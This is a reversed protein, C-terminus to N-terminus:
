QKVGKKSRPLGVLKLVEDALADVEKVAEASGPVGHVTSGLLMSRSYARRDGLTTRTPSFEKDRQLYEVAAADDKFHMRVATPVVRIPYDGATEWVKRALRKAAPLAALDPANLKTPILAISSSLLAGWTGSQEVSPACDCVIVDFKRAYSALQGAVEAGYKAGEWCQGKFNAGGKKAIWSGATAQPDLDAVMVDYGRLGLTGAIQCATTTKGSGGKENFVSIIIGSAQEM